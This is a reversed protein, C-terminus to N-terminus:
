HYGRLYDSRLLRTTRGQARGASIDVGIVQLRLSAKLGAAIAPNKGGGIDMVMM